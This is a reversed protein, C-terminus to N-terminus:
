KVPCTFARQDPSLCLLTLLTILGREFPAVVTGAFLLGHREGGM